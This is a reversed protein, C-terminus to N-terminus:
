ATDGKASGPAGTARAPAWKWCHRERRLRPLLKAVSNKELIDYAEGVPDDYWADYYEAIAEFNFTSGDM